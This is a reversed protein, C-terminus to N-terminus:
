SAGRISHFQALREHTITSLGSIEAINGHFDHNIKSELKENTIQFTLLWADFHECLIKRVQHIANDQLPTM